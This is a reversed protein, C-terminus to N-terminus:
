FYNKVKFYGTGKFIFRGIKFSFLKEKSSAKKYFYISLNFM